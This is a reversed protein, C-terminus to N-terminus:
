MSSSMRPTLGGQQDFEGLEFARQFELYGEPVLAHGLDEIADADPSGSAIGKPEKVAIIWGPGGGRGLCRVIQDEELAMEATGEPVFPYLAKYYGPVFPADSEQHQDEYESESAGPLADSYEEEQSSSSHPPQSLDATDDQEQPEDYQVKGQPVLGSLRSSRKSNTGSGSQSGGEYSSGFGFRAASAQFFSSWGSGSRRPGDSQSYSSGAASSTRKANSSRRPRDRLRIQKISSHREDETNFAFDRIKMLVTSTHKRQATPREVSALGPGSASRATSMRKSGRRSPLM